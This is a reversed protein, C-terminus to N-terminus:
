ISIGFVDFRYNKEVRDVGWDDECSVSGCHVSSTHSNFIGIAWGVVLDVGTVAICMAVVVWGACFVFVRIRVLEHKFYMGVIPIGNNDNEIERSQVPLLERYELSIDGCTRPDEVIGTWVTSGVKPPDLQGM